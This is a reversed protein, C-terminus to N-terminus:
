KQFIGYKKILINIFFVIIVGVLNGFLDSWQFSRNPIIMHSLELIVSLFILYIFLSNIKKLDYFTLIGLFSMLVFVYFHNSSIVIDATIQPQIKIDDYVIFGLLSGPFIYLIILVLNVLYFIIKFRSFFKIM